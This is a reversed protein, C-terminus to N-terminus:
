SPLVEYYVISDHTVNKKAQFKTNSENEIALVM